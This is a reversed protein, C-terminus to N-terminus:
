FTAGLGEANSLIFEALPRFEKPIHDQRWQSPRLQLISDHREVPM